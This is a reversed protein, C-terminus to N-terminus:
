RTDKSGEPSAVDKPREYIKTFMDIVTFSDQSSMALVWEHVEEPTFEEKKGTTKVAENAMLGATVINKLNSFTSTYSNSSMDMVLPDSKIMEGLFYLLGMNFKLGRKKGGLEIQLYDKSM